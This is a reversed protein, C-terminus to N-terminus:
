GKIAPEITVTGANTKIGIEAFGFCEPPFAYADGNTLTVTLSGDFENKLDGLTGGTTAAGMFSLTAAGSLATVVFDGMRAGSVDLRTESTSLALSSQTPIQQAAM